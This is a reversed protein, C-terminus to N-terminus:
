ADNTNEKLITEPLKFIPSITLTTDTPNSSSMVTEVIEFSSTVPAGCNPIGNIFYHYLLEAQKGYFTNIVELAMGRRKVVQMISMDEEDSIDIGIFLEESVRLKNTVKTCIHYEERGCTKECNECINNFTKIM